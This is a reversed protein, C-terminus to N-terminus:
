NNMEIKVVQRLNINPKLLDVLTKLEVTIRETELGIEDFDHSKIYKQKKLELISEVAAGEDFCGDNIIDKLLNDMQRSSTKTALKEVNKLRLMIRFYSIPLDLFQCLYYFASKERPILAESEKNLWSNEFTHFSVLKLKKSLLFAKLDNYLNESGKSVLLNNLLIKWLTHPKIDHALNYKEKIIKLESEEKQINALKEYLNFEAHIDDLKQIFINEHHNELIDDIRTVRLSNGNASSVIFLESSYFVKSKSDKFLVKISNSDRFSQYTNEIDWITSDDKQPRLSSNKTILQDSSFDKNRIPNNIISIFDRRHNYNTWEFKTKFFFGIFLAQATYKSILNDYFNPSLNYPYPGLDRYDMIIVNNKIRPLDRWTILRAPSINLAKAIEKILIADTHINENIVMSCGNQIYKIITSKWDSQIISDLILSLLENLENINEVSLEEIAAKTENTILENSAGKQFISTLIRNKIGDNIALSYISMMKLSRLEYLSEHHTLILKFDEWFTLATEGGFIVPPKTNTSRVLLQDIESGLIIYSCNETEQDSHQYRLQIREARHKLNLFKSRDEKTSIIIINKFNSTGTSNWEQLDKQNFDRYVQKQECNFLIVNEIKDLLPDEKYNKLSDLVDRSKETNLLIYNSDKEIDDISICIPQTNFASLLHEYEKHLVNILTKPLFGLAPKSTHLKTFFILRQKNEKREKLWKKAERNPKQLSVFSPFTQYNTDLNKLKSLKNKLFDDQDNNLNDEGINKYFFKLTIFELITDSHENPLHDLHLYTLKLKKDVFNLSRNLLKDIYVLLERSNAKNSTTVQEYINEFGEDPISLFETLHQKIHEEVIHM